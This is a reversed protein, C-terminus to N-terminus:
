IIRCFIFGYEGELFKESNELVLAVVNINPGDFEIKSNYSMSPYEVEEKHKLRTIPNRGVRKIMMKPRIRKQLNSVSKM